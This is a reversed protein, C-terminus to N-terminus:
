EQLAAGLETRGDVVYPRETGTSTNLTWVVEGNRVVFLVQRGKDVEVLDGAASTTPREAAALAARTAPGAVGDPSLGEVKQFATVAQETPPGFTDNLGGM